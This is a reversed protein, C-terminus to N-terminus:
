SRREPAHHICDHTTQFHREIFRLVQDFVFANALTVSFRVGVHLCRIRYRVGSRVREIIKYLLNAACQLKGLHLSLM